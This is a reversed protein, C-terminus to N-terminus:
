AFRYYPESIRFTQKLFEEVNLRSNVGRYGKGLGEEFAQRESEDKISDVIKPKVNAHILLYSLAFDTNNDRWGWLYQLKIGGESIKYNKGICLGELGMRDSTAKGLFEGLAYLLRKKDPVKELEQFYSQELYEEVFYISQSRDSLVGLVQPKHGYYFPLFIWPLERPIEGSELNFSVKKAFNPQYVVFRTGIRIRVFDRAVEAGEVSAIDDIHYIPIIYEDGDKEMRFNSRRWPGRIHRELESRNDAMGAHDNLRGLEQVWKPLLDM